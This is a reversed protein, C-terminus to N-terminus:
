NLHHYATYRDKEPKTEEPYRYALVANIFSSRQDLGANPYAISAARFLEHHAALEHINCSELLWAIKDDDSLDNRGSLTHIALRRLVPVPSGAHRQSWLRAVDAQNVTLWELCDRATDILLDIEGHLNDQEHPEIASRVFDDRKWTADGEEWAILVAHRSNLRMTTLALLPEAMEPLNPKVCESLIKQTVYHFMDSDRWELRPPARNLRATLAQYVQLLGDTARVSACAEALWSIEIEDAEVPITGTLYLVWRNMVAADPSQSISSQMQLSLKQWLEPNIRGGHRKILTFLEDDHTIAFDSSLWNALKWDRQSLEGNTFLASLHGRRDLWDIWDPIKASDVFFQTKVPDNLAHEIVDASEDDIPGVPPYGSAIATIQSQWDRIGRRMFDALGSVSEDLGTFDKADTQHFTIPEIGMRGWHHPDDSQNGILAFRNRNSDPPLSPTLYTMIPDSHSYGVFLVTYNTFLNIVFRRAWGDSETLYARGFDQHTLVMNEPENVSGHLHVIGHIRSGLPLTPAHFVNPQPNYQGLAAQEFLDDFNTTVTQVRGPEGFLRLLNSHLTTHEPNNRQLIEAARRHVDTGRGKLRGLFQVQTEANEISQGTGAAVQEALRRFDPLRAPPGMSVGAGAFVVLRGDHLANLLRDPFDVSAIKM